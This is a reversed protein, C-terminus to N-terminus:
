LAALERAAEAAATRWAVAFASKAADPMEGTTQAAHGAPKSAHWAALHKYITTFSGGGVAALLTAASIAKGEAVLTDAADFVEKETVMAKRGLARDGHVLVSKAWNVM